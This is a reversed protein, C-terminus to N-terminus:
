GSNSSHPLNNIFSSPPHQYSPPASDIPAVRIYVNIIVIFLPSETKEEKKKRSNATYYRVHIPNMNKKPPIM